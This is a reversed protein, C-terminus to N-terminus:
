EESIRRGNYSFKRIGGCVPCLYILARSWFSSGAYNMQRKTYYTDGSLNTVRDGCSETRCYITFERPNFTANSM